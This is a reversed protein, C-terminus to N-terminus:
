FEGARKSFIYAPVAWLLMYIFVNHPTAATVSGCFVLYFMLLMGVVASIASLFINRKTAKRLRGAAIISFAMPAFGGRSVVACPDRDITQEDSSLDLRKEIEPYILDSESSSFGNWDDGYSSINIDKKRKKRRKLLKGESLGFLTEVMMPTLNFDITALVLRIKRRKMAEFGNQVESNVKYTVNYVGAIESNVAIFIANKVNAGESVRLGMRLMFGATGLFVKDGNVEAEVGGSEYYKLGYVKETKGFQSKLLEAFVKYLGSRSEKIISTTYALTKELSHKGYVKLGHLKVCGHPFVDTDRLIVRLDGVLEQASYWGAIAAGIDTLKKCVVSFPHAYCHMVFFPASLSSIAALGWIFYEGAGRGYSAVAAFVISAVIVISAFYSWFRDAGDQATLHGVFTERDEISHKFVNRDGYFDKVFIGVPEKTAGATKCARLYARNKLFVGCVAFFLTVTSVACYPLAIDIGHNALSTAAHVLSAINAFLVASEANPRLVTFGRIGKIVVDYGLLLGICQFAALALVFRFPHLSYEVFPLMPWSFQATAMLYCMPLSLLFLMIARKKQWRVRKEERKVYDAPLEHPVQSEKKKIRFGRTEGNDDFFVNAAETKIRTVTDFVRQKNNLRKTDEDPKSPAAVNTKTDELDDNKKEGNKKKWPAPEPKASLDLDGFKGDEWPRVINTILKPQNQAVKVESVHVSSEPAITDNEKKASVTKKHVTEAKKKPPATNDSAGSVQVDSELLSGYRKVSKGSGFEALVDELNFADDRAGVSPIHKLEDLLQTVGLPDIREAMNSAQEPTKKNREMPM